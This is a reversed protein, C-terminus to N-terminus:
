AGVSAGGHVAVLKALRERVDFRHTVQRLKGISVIASVTMHSIVTAMDVVDNRRV